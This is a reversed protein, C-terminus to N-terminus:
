FRHINPKRLLKKTSTCDLYIWSDTHVMVFDEDGYLEQPEGPGRNLYDLSIGTSDWIWSDEISFENLGVWYELPSSM